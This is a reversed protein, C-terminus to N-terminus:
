SPAAGNTAAVWWLGNTRPRGGRTTTPSELVDATGTLTFVRDVQAPGRLVILRRGDRRAREAADVIVRMGACDMFALERLDLM